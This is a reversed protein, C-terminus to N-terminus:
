ESFIAYSISEEFSEGTSLIFQSGSFSLFMDFDLILIIHSMLQTGMYQVSFDFLNFIFILYYMSM